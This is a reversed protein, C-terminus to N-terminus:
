PPPSISQLYYFSYHNKFFVFSSAAVLSWFKFSLHAPLIYEFFVFKQVTNNQHSSPTNIWLSDLMSMVKMEYQDSAVWFITSDGASEEKLIDYLIDNYVIETNNNKQISFNAIKIQELDSNIKFNTFAVERSFNRLYLFM